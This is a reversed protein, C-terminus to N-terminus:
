RLLVSLSNLNMVVWRADAAQFRLYHLHFITNAMDTVILEAYMVTFSPLDLRLYGWVNKPHIPSSIAISGAAIVGVRPGRHWVVAVWVPNDFCM